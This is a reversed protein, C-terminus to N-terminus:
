IEVLCELPGVSSLPNFCYMSFHIREGMGVRKNLNLLNGSWEGRNAALKNETMLLIDTPLYCLEFSSKYHLSERLLFSDVVRACECRYDSECGDSDRKCDGSVQVQFHVM